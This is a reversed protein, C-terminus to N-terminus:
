KPLINQNNKFLNYQLLYANIPRYDDSGYLVIAAQIDAPAPADAAVPADAAATILGTHTNIWSSINQQSNTIIHNNVSHNKCIHM